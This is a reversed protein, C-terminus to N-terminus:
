PESVEGAGLGCGNRCLSGVFRPWSGTNPQFICLALCGTASNLNAPYHLWVLASPCLSRSIMALVLLASFKM